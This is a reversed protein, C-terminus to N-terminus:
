TKQKGILVEDRVDVEAFHVKVVETDKTEVKFGIYDPAIPLERHGRDVLVALEIRKPRGFDMIQDIAARVSRGTYLVDDVLVITKNNVDFPIQTGKDKPQPATDNLDDRYLTTDIAGLPLAVKNARKMEAQIRQALQVGRTKVGVLAVDKPKPNSKLIDQALKSVALSIAKKDYLVRDSM